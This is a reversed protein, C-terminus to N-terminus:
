SSPKISSSDYLRLIVTGPGIMLLSSILAENPSEPITRLLAKRV